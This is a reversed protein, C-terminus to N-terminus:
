FNSHMSYFRARKKQPRGNRQEYTKMNKWAEHRRKRDCFDEYTMNPEVVSRVKDSLPLNLSPQANKTQARCTPCTRAGVAFWEALCDGCFIHGCRLASPELFYDRCIPCTLEFETDQFTSGTVPPTPQVVNTVPQVVFVFENYMGVSLFDDGSFNIKDGKQLTYPINPDVKKGNIFTGNTSNVDTLTVQNHENKQITAHFLSASQNKNDHNYLVV